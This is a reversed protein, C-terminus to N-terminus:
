PLVPALTTSYTFNATAQALRIEKIGLGTVQFIRENDSERFGMFECQFKDTTFRVPKDFQGSWTYTVGGVVGGDITLLGTPLNVSWGSLMEVDNAYVKVTGSVPKQIIKDVYRTSAAYRKYLQLYPTTAVAKTVGEASTVEFDDWAKFRFGIARGMRAKFFKLLWDIETRNYLDAATTWEGLEEAWNINVYTAGSAVEVLDTSFVPGGVLGYRIETNFREEVFAEPM